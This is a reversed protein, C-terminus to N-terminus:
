YEDEDSVKKLQDEYTLNLQANTDIEQKDKWGFNNKLNFIVGTVASGYLHQELYGEVKARAKNITLFFEEKNGYNVLTKRDIGLALALGSMTYHKNNKDCDAFYKDIDRELDEAKTYLLPRGGQNKPVAM